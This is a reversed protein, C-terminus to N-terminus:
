FGNALKSYITTKINKRVVHQRCNHREFNRNLDSDNYFAKQDLCRKITKNKM